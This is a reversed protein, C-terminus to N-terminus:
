STVSVHESILTQHLLIPSLIPLLGSLYYKLTAEDPQTHGGEGMFMLLATQVDDLSCINNAHSGVWIQIDM